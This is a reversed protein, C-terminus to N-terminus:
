YTWGWYRKLIETLVTGVFVLAATVLLVLEATMYQPAETM